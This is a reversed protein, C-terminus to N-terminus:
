RPAVAQQMKELYRERSQQIAERAEDPGFWGRMQVVKGELKKYLTFFHELERLVHPPWDHISQIEDMRPNRAPVSMITQDLEGNDLLDLMGIPRVLLACGPFSAHSVLALVDIPDGDYAVTGPIFGYDGPYHMPSYLARDLKFLGFRPDYEYKNASEKPIEVVMRVSRPCEPGPDLDYLGKPVFGAYCRRRPATPSDSVHFQQLTEVVPEVGAIHIHHRGRKVLIDHPGVTYLAAVDMPAFCYATVPRALQCHQIWEYPWTPERLTRAALSSEFDVLHNM